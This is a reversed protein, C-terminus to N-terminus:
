MRGSYMHCTSYVAADGDQSPRSSLLRSHTSDGYFIEQLCIYYLCCLYTPEVTSRPRCLLVVTRQPKCADFVFIQLSAVMKAPRRGFVFVFKISASAAGGAGGAAAEGESAAGGEAPPGLM